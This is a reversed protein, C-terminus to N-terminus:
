LGIWLFPIETIKNKKKKCLQRVGGSIEFSLQVGTKHLHNLSISEKREYMSHQCVEGDNIELVTREYRYM